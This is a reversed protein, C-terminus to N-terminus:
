YMFIHYCALGFLQFLLAFLMGLGFWVQKNNDYVKKMKNCKNELENVKNKLEIENMQKKTLTNM